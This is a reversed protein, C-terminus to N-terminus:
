PPGVDPMAEDGVLIRYFRDHERQNAMQGLRCGTARYNRGCAEFSFGKFVVHLYRKGQAIQSPSPRRTELAHRELKSFYEDRTSPEDVIGMGTYKPRAAVLAPLGRVVFDVGASSLWVLGLRAFPLLSFTNVNEESDIVFVNALGRAAQSSVEGMYVACKSGIWREAPHARIVLKLHPHAAFWQIVERAWAQQGPFITERRLLSSDGIVNPALLYVPQDGQLFNLLKSPLTASISNRQIRYFNDLWEADDQKGVDLFKLYANVEREKGTDWPGFSEIWGQVNYELAPANLNYIMHGPRWAWGELCVTDIGSARLVSLLVKSEGILGSFCFSRGFTRSELFSALAASLRVIRSKMLELKRKYLEPNGRVDHEEIHEDYAVAPFAWAGAEEEWRHILEERPELKALDILEVGPIASVRSWFSGAGASARYFREIEPSYYVLTAEYGLSRIVCACYVAWEIWTENRLATILIRGKPKPVVGLAGIWQELSQRPTASRRVRLGLALRLESDVFDRTTIASKIAKSFLRKIRM